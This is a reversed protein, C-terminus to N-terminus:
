LRIRSCTSIPTATRMATSSASEACRGFSQPPGQSLAIVALVLPRQYERVGAYYIRRAIEISRTGDDDGVAADDGGARFGRTGGAGLPDVAPARDDRRAEDVHADEDALGAAPPTVEITM